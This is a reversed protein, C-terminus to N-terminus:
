RPWWTRQARRTAQPSGRDDVLEFLPYHVVQVFWILGFMALTSILQALLFPM